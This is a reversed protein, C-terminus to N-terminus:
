FTAALAIGRGTPAVVLPPLGAADRGSRNVDLQGLSLGVIGAYWGTGVLAAAPAERAAYFCLPVGVLGIAYLGWGAGGPLASVRVGQEALARRARLGSALAIPPTGAMVVSGTLVSLVGGARAGEAGDATEGWVVLGVGVGAGIGALAAAVTAGRSLRTARREVRAWAAADDLRWPLSEPDAPADIALAVPAFWM